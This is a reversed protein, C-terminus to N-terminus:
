VHLVPAAVPPSRHLLVLVLASDRNYAMWDMIELIESPPTPLPPQDEDGKKSYAVNTSLHRLDDGYMDKINKIVGELYEILTERERGDFLKWMVDHEKRYEEIRRDRSRKTRRQIASEVSAKVVSKKKPSPANRKPM